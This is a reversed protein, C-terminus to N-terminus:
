ITVPWTFGRWDTITGPCGLASAALHGQTVILEVGLPVRFHAGMCHAVAVDLTAKPPLNNSRNWRCKLINMLHVQGRVQRGQPFYENMMSHGTAGVFPSGQREEDAGPNQGVIAVPAHEVLEDPVFGQGDGYLPCGQCSEPKTM